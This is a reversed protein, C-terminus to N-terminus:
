KLAKGFRYESIRFGSYCMILIMEIIPDAKHKRLVALDEDSFPVGHEDEAADPMRLGSAYNKDCLEYVEAFTKENEAKVSETHSYASFDTLLRRTSPMPMREANTWTASIESVM